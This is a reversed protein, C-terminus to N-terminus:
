GFSDFIKKKELRTIQTIRHSNIKLLVELNVEGGPVRFTSVVPLHDSANSQIVRHDLVEWNAPVFIFDITQEPAKAPFTLPGEFVGTFRGSNRILQISPDLPRANFDGALIVAREGAYDLMQQTQVLNNTLNFSDNHVSALLIQQGGIQLACWLMRRNNTTVYFPKRGALSINKLPEIPFRSLIANGGIIRYFPLGFNYNEGFAWTHMGTAEALTVVQNVPCPTCEFITESFFVIDPQEANILDAIQRIRAAAVDREEFRLGGKHISGKAINYALIKLEIPAFVNHVVAPAHSTVGTVPTEGSSLFVGNIVFLIGLVVVIAAFIVIIFVCFRVIRSLFKM